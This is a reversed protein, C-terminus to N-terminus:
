MRTSGGAVIAAKEPAGVAPSAGSVTLKSSAEWPEILERSQLKPSPPLEDSVFGLWV